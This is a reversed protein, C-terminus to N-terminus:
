PIDNVIKFGGGDLCSSTKSWSDPLAWFGTGEQAPELLDDLAEADEYEQLVSLDGYYEDGFVLAPLKVDQGAVEYLQAKREPAVDIYVLEYRRKKAALLDAIRREEYEIHREHKTSSSYLVLFSEEFENRDVAHARCDPDEKQKERLGLMALRYEIADRVTKEEAPEETTTTEAGDDDDEHNQHWNRDRYDNVAVILKLSSLVAPDTDNAPKLFPGGFDPFDDPHKMIHQSLAFLCNVVLNLDRCEYLDVTEFQDSRPVGFSTVAKLFNEINDMQLYQVKGDYIRRVSDPSITNALKCLVTGDQLEEAFPHRFVHGTTQEIWHQALAEAMPDYKAAAKAALQRDMAGGGRGKGSKLHMKGLGLKKSPVLGQETGKQVLVWTTEEACFSWGGKSLKVTVVDGVHVSLEDHTEADHAEIVTAVDDEKARPSAETETSLRREREEKHAKLKEERTMEDKKVIIKQSRPRDVHRLNIKPCGTEHKEIMMKKERDGVPKLQIEGLTPKVKKEITTKPQEAARVASPKKAM